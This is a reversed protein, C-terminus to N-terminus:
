KRSKRRRRSGRDKASKRDNLATALREVDVPEVTLSASVVAGDAQVEIRGVAPGLALGQAIVVLNDRQQRWFALVATADSPSAMVLAVALRSGAADFTAFAALPGEAVEGDTAEVLSAGLAAPVRGVGWLALDRDVRALLDLMRDNESVKVGRSLGRVLWGRDRALVATKPSGYALWLPGSAGRVRFLPRGDETVDRDVAGSKAMCTVVEERPPAGDFAALAHATEAGFAVFARGLGDVVGAGCRKRWAAAMARLERDGELVADRVARAVPSARLAALDAGLVARADDPVVELGTLAPPPVSARRAAPASPPPDDKCATSAVVALAAFVLGAFSIRTM